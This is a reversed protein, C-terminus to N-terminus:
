LLKIYLKEILQEWDSCDYAYEAINGFGLDPLKELMFGSMIQRVTMDNFCRRNKFKNYLVDIPIGTELLLESLGSRLSVIKKSLRSIFFGRSIVSLM